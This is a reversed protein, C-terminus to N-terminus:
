GAGVHGVRRVRRAALAVLLGDAVLSASGLLTWPDPAFGPLGITRSVVYALALSLGLAEAALWAAPEADRWLEVAVLACALAALAFLVGLYPARDAQSWTELGHVVALGGAAAAAVLRPSPSLRRVRQSGPVSRAPVVRVYSPM